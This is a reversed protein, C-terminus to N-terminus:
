LAAPVVGIGRVHFLALLCFCGVLPDYVVRELDGAAPGSKRRARLVFKRVVLLAIRLLLLLDWVDRGAAVTRFARFCFSFLRKM